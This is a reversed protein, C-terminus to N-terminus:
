SLWIADWYPYDGARKALGARVPNAVVYRALQELSEERRLASDHFGAMWVPGSRGLANNIQYASRGKVINILESLSCGEKLEVVGHWHDPMLVWCMLRAGKWLDASALIAAALSAAHWDSFLAERNCTVFTLLYIQGPQSWRGRRLARYGPKKTTITM